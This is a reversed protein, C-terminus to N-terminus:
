NVKAVKDVSGFVSDYLNNEQLDIRYEKTLLRNLDSLIQNKLQESDKSKRPLMEFAANLEKQLNIVVALIEPESLKIRKM